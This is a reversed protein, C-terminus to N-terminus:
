LQPESICGFVPSYNLPLAATELVTSPPELGEEGAETISFLTNALAKFSRSLISNSLEKKNWIFMGDRESPSGPNSPNNYHFM